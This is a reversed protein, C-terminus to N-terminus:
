FNLQWDLQVSRSVEALADPANYLAPLENDRNLLNKVQVRLQQARNIQWRSFIDVRWYNNAAHAETGSLYDQQDYDLMIRTSIGATLRQPAFLQQVAFNMMWAPSARYNYDQEINESRGYSLMGSFTTSAQQKTLSIEVGHARNEDNNQYQNNTGGVPVLTIADHWANYYLTLDFQLSANFQQYVIEYSDITEAKLTSNGLVSGSGYIEIASPARFAHGYLLKIRAADNLAYIYALRPSSHGGIDDYEDYRMGYNIESNTSVSSRGQFFGYQVRRKKGDYESETHELEQGSADRRIFVGDDVGMLDMGLGMVWQRLFLQNQGSLTASVGSRENAVYQFLEHACILPNPNASQANAKCPLTTNGLTTLSDPYRSNDFMWGQESQWYYTKLNLRIDALQKEFNLYTMWFHSVQDSHDLDQEMDPSQLQFVAPLKIFFQRGLGSFNEARYDDQYVGFRLSGFSADYRSSVYVSANEFQNAREGYETDGSLPDQYYFNLHQNHQHQYAAGVDVSLNGYQRASYFDAGEYQPDAMSLQLENGIQAAHRLHYAMVGQFADTGYLTSGPGRIIEIDQLLGLQLNPKDYAASSYAFSNLPVDELSSALGRVSLESAYGRINHVQAGGWSSLTVLSPVNELADGVRRAGQLQWQERGVRNVSAPADLISEQVMSAVSVELQSLQEISLEFIDDQGHSHSALLCLLLPSIRILM